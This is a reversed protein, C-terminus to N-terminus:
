ARGIGTPRENNVTVLHRCLEGYIREYDDDKLDQDRFAKRLEGLVHSRGTAMFARFGAPTEFAQIMVSAVGLSWYFRSTKDQKELHKPLQPQQM